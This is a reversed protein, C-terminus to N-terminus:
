VLAEKSQTTSPCVYRYQDFLYSFILSKEYLIPELELHSITGRWTHVSEQEFEGWHWVHLLKMWCPGPNPDHLLLVQPLKRGLSGQYLTVLGPLQFEPM